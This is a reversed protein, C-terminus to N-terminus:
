ISNLVYAFSFLLHNTSIHDFELLFYSYLFKKQFIIFAVNLHNSALHLSLHSPFSGTSPLAHLHPTHHYMLQTATERNGM